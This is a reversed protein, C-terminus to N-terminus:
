EAKPFTQDLTPGDILLNESPPLIMIVPALLQEGDKGTIETREVYGRDKAKTKLYFIISAEKENEISKFLKSEVFDKAIDEVADIRQRYKSDKRLWNYHTTRDIGVMRCAQTVVGLSKEMASIMQKKLTHNNTSM